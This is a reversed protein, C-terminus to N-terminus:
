RESSGRQTCRCVGAVPRVPKVVVVTRRAMEKPYMCAGQGCEPIAQEDYCLILHDRSVVWM